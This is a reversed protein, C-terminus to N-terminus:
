SISVNMCTVGRRSANEDIDVHSYEYVELVYDGAGLAIPLVESTGTEQSFDLLGAQYLVLDPDPDPGGTQSGTSTYEVRITVDTASALSFRLFRRNGLKNYTGAARTGCVRTAGGGLTLPAYVPEAETIGGFNTEGAGYPGTGFVQQSEVLADIAAVPAGPDARLAAVFPYLSVLAAGNRLENTLADLMPAFGLAVSDQGDSAADYLDLVLSQVSGENFFGAPSNANSELDIFFSEAQQTGFSDRYVPDDLVMASFANAYGESFALRMDLKDELTHPGAPSETRSIADELFHQFEHVIVHQDFEDTDAGEDGLVYIGAPFGGIAQNSYQTGTSIEGIGPDWNGTGRNDKSWFVSLAPLHLASGGNARVFQVASYISDLIAFPASARTSAYNTGGFDPWGSDALLNKTITAADTCFASSDLVYLANGNTNNLVRVDWGPTARRTQARARVKVSTNSSVTTTYSGNADTTTSALVSQDSSSIVEVIVERAPEATIAAYDLGATADFEFPVREYTIRGTVTM